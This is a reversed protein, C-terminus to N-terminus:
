KLKGFFVVNNTDEKLKSLTQRLVQGDNETCSSEALRNEIEEMLQEPQVNYVYYGNRFAIFNATVPLNGLFDNVVNVYSSTKAKLDTAVVGKNIYGLNGTEPNIGLFYIRTLILDNNVQLYTKVPNEASAYAATFRPLINNREVDFHYLTDIGTHSFDFIGPTNKSNFIEDDIGQVRFHEPPALENLVQGTNVDFQYAIARSNRQAMHFATLVNGSLFLKAKNLREPAVINKMFQGSTNYVLINEGWFLALYILENKDDIIADYPTLVYEGPGQGRAGVNCLFKGSRDFLKYAERQCSVGIYKETLTTLRPKFFADDNTELQVFSFDDLLSSLPLTVIDPKLNDLSIVSIKHGNVEIISVLGDGKPLCSYFCFVLATLLKKSKLKM